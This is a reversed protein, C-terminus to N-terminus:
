KRRGHRRRMSPRKTEEVRLREGTHRLFVDDLTPQALELRAVPVDASDLARVVEALRSSGHELFVAVSHNYSKTEAAGSMGDLISRTREFVDQQATEPLTVTIAEGGLTAKLEAPSGEIQIRGQDIIALRECLTNAEEMYQTTLFITLGSENLKRLHGWLARRNQPDLGTTPEDLFLLHPEHVLAQALDLRRRMGGSFTGARRKAVDQLDMIELLENAKKKAERTSINHLRAQLILNEHATLDDDVGIFQAAYGVRERIAQPNKTVDFGDVLIKGSTPKLLTVIARITTTKGAGNPGLFGFIEGKEVRFSIDDVARVDGPFDKILNEVTIMARDEKETGTKDM